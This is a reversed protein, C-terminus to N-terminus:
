AGREKRALYARLIGGVLGAAPTALVGIGEARLGAHVAANGAQIAMAAVKTHAEAVTNPTSRALAVLGPDEIDVLLVDHRRRLGRLSRSVDAAATSDSVSTCLLVLSRRPVHVACWAAVVRYDSEDTDVAEAYLQEFVPLYSGPNRNVRVVRRIERSFLVLTVHDQQGVAVRLLALVAALARDLKPIGDALAAMPRGADLLIVVNQNQEWTTDAVIPRHLRATAKWHIKRFDDGWQYLRLGYLETSFGRQAHLHAGSRGELARRVFLGEEGGFRVQPFVRVAQAAVLTRVAEGLGLPGRVRAAVEALQIVGRRLPVVVREPQIRARAPVSVTHEMAVPALEPALADRLHVSVARASRNEVVLGLRIEQGQYFVGPLERWAPLPTRRAARADLAVLVLVVLDLLVGLGVLWPVVLGLVLCLGALALLWLARRTPIM